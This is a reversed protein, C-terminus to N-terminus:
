TSGNNEKEATEQGPRQTFVDNMADHQVADGRHLMPNMMRARFVRYVFDEPLYPDGKDKDVHRRPASKQGASEDGVSPIQKDVIASM